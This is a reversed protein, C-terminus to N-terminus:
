NFFPKKFIFCYNIANPLRYSNWLTHTYFRYLIHQTTTSKALTAHFPRNTLMVPLFKWFIRVYFRTSIQYSKRTSIRVFEWLKRTSIYWLIMFDLRSEWCSEYREYQELNSFRTSVHSMMMDDLRSTHMHVDLQCVDLYTSDYTCVSRSVCMMMYLRVYVTVSSISHQSSKFNSLMSQAFLILRKGSSYM